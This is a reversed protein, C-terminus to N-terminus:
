QSSKAQQMQQGDQDNSDVACDPAPDEQLTPESRSLDTTTEPVRPEKGNASPHGLNM